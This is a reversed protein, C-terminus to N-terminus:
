GANEKPYCGAPTFDVRLYTKFDAMHKKVADVAAPHTLSRRWVPREVTGLVVFTQADVARGLLASLLQEIEAQHAILVECAPCLRCTKGLVVVGFDEVHIVLPLKRIRTKAECKPCRTFGADRHPNLVFSYRPPLAGLRAKSTGRHLKM